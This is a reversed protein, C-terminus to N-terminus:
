LSLFFKLVMQLLLESINSNYAVTILVNKIIIAYTNAKGCVDIPSLINNSIERIFNEIDPDTYLFNFSYAWFGAINIDKLADNYHGKKIEKKIYKKQINFIDVADHYTLKYM